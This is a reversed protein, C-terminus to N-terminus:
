PRPELPITTHVVQGRGGLAPLPRGDLEVLIGGANGATVRFGKGSRWERVAGAALTEEAPPGGDPQVRVWTAEVARILLVHEAPSPSTTTVDPPASPTVAAVRPASGHPPAPAPVGSAVGPSAPSVTVPPSAPAEPATSPSPPTPAVPTAPATRPGAFTAAGGRSAVADPQRRGLLFAATAGVAVVIVAAAAARRWRRAGPKATAAPPTPQVRLPPDPIAQADYLRHAHEVDAGVQECYARIFGRVYVPAPLDAHQDGELAQVFRPAIRSGTSVAEVSLGSRERCERLYKGVSLDASM